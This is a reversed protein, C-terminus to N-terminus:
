AKEEDTKEIEVKFNWSGTNTSVEEQKAELEDDQWAPEVWSSTSNDDQSQEIVVVEPEVAEGLEEIAAEITVLEPRGVGRKHRKFFRRKEKPKEVIMEENPVDFAVMARDLLGTFFEAIEIAGEGPWTHIPRAAGQTQQLHAREELYDPILLGPFM